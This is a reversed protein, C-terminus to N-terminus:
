PRVVFRASYNGYRTGTNNFDQNDCNSLTRASRWWTAGTTNGIASLWIADTSSGIDTLLSNDCAVQYEWRAPSTNSYKDWNTSSLSELEWWATGNNIYSFASPLHSWSKQTWATLYKQRNQYTVNSLTIASTIAITVDTNYASYTITENLWEDPYHKYDMDTTLDKVWDICDAIYLAPIAHPYTWVTHPVLWTIWDISRAQNYDNWTTALWKM